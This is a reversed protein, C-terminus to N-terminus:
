FLSFGRVNMGKGKKNRNFKKEFYIYTDSKKYEDEETFTLSAM